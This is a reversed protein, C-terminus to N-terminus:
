WKIFANQRDAAEGPIKAWGEAKGDRQGQNWSADTAETLSYWTCHLILWLSLWEKQSASLTVFNEPIEGFIVGTSHDLPFVNSSDHTLSPIRFMHRWKPRKSPRLSCTIGQKCEIVEHIFITVAKGPPGQWMTSASAHFIFARLSTTSGISSLSTREGYQFNFGASNQSELLKWHGHNLFLCSRSNELANYSLSIAPWLIFCLFKISCLYFATLRHFTIFM